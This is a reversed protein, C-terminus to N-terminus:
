RPILSLWHDTGWISRVYEESYVEVPVAELGALEAAVIRHSGTILQVMGDDLRYGVLPMGLWGILKMSELLEELKEPHTIRHPPLCSSVQVGM